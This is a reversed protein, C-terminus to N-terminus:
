RRLWDRCFANHLSDDSLCHSKPDKEYVGKGRLYLVIEFVDSSKLYSYMLYIQRDIGFVLFIYFLRQFQSKILAVVISVLIFFSFIM